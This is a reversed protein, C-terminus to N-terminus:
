NKKLIQQLLERNPTLSDIYSAAAFGLCILVIIVAVIKIGNYDNDDTKKVIYNSFWWGFILMFVAFAAFAIATAIDSLHQEKALVHWGSEAKEGVQRLFEALKEDM